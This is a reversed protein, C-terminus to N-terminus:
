DAARRVEGLPTVVVKRCNRRRLSDPVATMGSKPIEKLRRADHIPVFRIQKSQPVTRVVYLARGTGERDLEIVDGCSLSFLFRGGNCDDRRVVPEGRRLRQTAEFLSVVKGEWRVAGGGEACVEFLTIHHNADSTVHRRRHASGVPFTVLNKALRVRRIPIRIGGGGSLYPKEVDAAFAKKVDGGAEEVRRRVAARVVPDVIDDIDGKHLAALPKRIHVVARGDVTRAGYFTDQHLAGRVRRSLRRSPIVRDIVAKIDGIFGPWPEEVDKFLKDYAEARRAAATLRMVTRTDSLAVAVADVAHHRHDDRSKLDDRSLLGNLGHAHRVLATIMGASAQIRRKGEADVGQTRGGGYLMSLYRMALKSAYRTDNLQRSCFENIFANHEAERMEFRRVKAWRGPGKFERVRGMIEEWRETRGYAEWPTRSHKVKRNEDAHCLTKNMFSDDLCRSFPIIHEIDFQPSRGLLDHIGFPEATYPCRWSCEEALLIKLIDDRSPNQIGTEKRIREAARMRAQENQRMKKSLELRVKATQRLDRALEVRVFDPKGYRQVVANVVRRLETLSRIVLPNRIDGLASLVSPLEDVAETLRNMRERYEPVAEIADYLKAGQRLHPLLKDLAQRSFACHGPELRIETLRKAQEPALGWKRQGRRALAGDNVISRVDEVVAERDAETLDRWRELGFVGALQAATRNGKIRKEGGRELNFVTGRLSPIGGRGRFSSYTAEATAELREIIAEREESSLARVEGTSKDIVALNNMTQLYRFRQASLHEWSARRYKPELECKGVFRKQSKLPRQYFIIERIKERLDPLLVDPAFGAQTNWLADFEQEYMHRGTYRDRIRTGGGEISAFYEGITRAGVSAMERELDLIGQRVKGAEDEDKPASRRNSLFGRRQALHYLARGFEYPELRESIGRRRLQYPSEMSCDLRKFFEHRAASDRIDALPLLGVTQLFNALRSTRRAQRELRRRISRAERRQMNRSKGRADTELEDLGAEFVRVGAAVVGTPM